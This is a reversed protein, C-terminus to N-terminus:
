MRWGLAEQRSNWLRAYLPSRELLERHTGVADIGGRGDLVIIQDASTVTSLRHAILVVTRTKVLGNIAQQIQSENEPDVSATAEDLLVIPADKLIARAISVRQKEGGSLTAGGEGIRTEYGEPLASIFDHCCATRAANVVSVRAAMPAGFAINEFITGQFLYVDQFVMSIQAHLADSTFQSVPVGGISVTGAQPDWFRAILRLITSKGAGSPGVIATVTKEPITFSVQKLVDPSDSGYRFSVNEFAIASSAPRKAVAGEPLPKENMLAELRDVTVEAAQSVEYVSGLAKIPEYLRLGLVLFALFAFLSTQGGLFLYAGYLLLVVFGCDLLAQFGLMFPMSRFVLSLNIRKFRSLLEAFARFREGALKFGKVVEMGQVYQIVASSVEVLALSRRRMGYSLAQQCKRLMPLAFPVPLLACLALRWDIYFLFPAMVLPMAMASVFQPFAMRPILTLMVLDDSILATTDGANRRSLYSMPLTRLHDGVKIRVQECLETGVPYALTTFLRCFLGQLLYSVAIAGTYIWAKEMTLTRALLDDLFFILVGYPAGMFFTEVVKYFAAAKMASALSPVLASLRYM